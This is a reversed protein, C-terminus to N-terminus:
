KNSSTSVDGANSETQQTTTVEEWKAKLTINGTVKNNFDYTQGNLQWEVFKNNDKTPNTAPRIAKNGEAINQPTIPTASTGGDLDFTVTYNAQAHYRATIKINEKVPTNFDYTQNNYVWGDFIYGGKTPDTPKTVKDGEKVTQNPISNGGDTDFEVTYNKAIIEWKAKLKIDDTVEKGFDYSKGNLQWEVFKYNEKTPDSPKIVKEGVKVEQSKVDSGGDSDFQVKYASVEEFSATLNTESMIKTNFDFPVGNLQWEVFRYGKKTPNAPKTVKTNEKIPITAYVKDDVNFIVNIKGKEKWMAKLTINATVPTSFDYKQNNLYWGTLEYGDRTSTPEEVTMKEEVVKNEVKSGGNANFTVTYKKIEVYNGTLSIDSTINSSLDFEEGAENTLSIRYGERAPINLKELTVKEGERVKATYETENLTVKIEFEKIDNWVATLTINSTVERSFDYKVGSLQWEVFESNEKIPKEPEKAMEGNKLTQSSVASGGNSDFSVVVNSFKDGMVFYLGICVIGLLLIITGLIKSKGM